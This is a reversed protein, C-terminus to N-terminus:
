RDSEAAKVVGAVTYAENPTEDVEDGILGVDWGGRAKVEDGPEPADAATKSATPAEESKTAPKAATKKATTAM